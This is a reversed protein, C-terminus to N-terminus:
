SPRWPAPRAVTSRGANLGAYRAGRYRPDSRHGLSRAPPLIRAAIRSPCSPSAPRPRPRSCARPSASWRGPRPDTSRRASPITRRPRRPRRATRADKAKAASQKPPDCTAVPTKEAYAFPKARLPIAKPTPKPTPPAAAAKEAQKVQAQGAKTSAKDVQVLGTPLFDMPNVDNGNRLLEFHLHTGTSKGTSGMKGIVQGTHVLDGAKVVNGPILHGYRSTFGDAHVVDVVYARGEQDYPNWGAYAVVGAAITRVPTGYGDVVDIGDHFHKCKGKPPNYKFGTCGYTQSIRGTTPWSFTGDGEALSVTAQAAVKLKALAMMQKIYASLSAEAGERRSIAAQKQNKLSRIQAQKARMARGATQARALINAKRAEAIRIEKRITALRQAWDGPRPSSGPNGWLATRDALRTNREALVANVLNLENQAQYYTKELPRYQKIAALRQATLRIVIRDQAAMAAEASRQAARVSAIRSELDQAATPQVSALLASAVLAVACLAIVIRSSVSIWAPPTALSM